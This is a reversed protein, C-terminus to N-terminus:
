FLWHNIGFQMQKDLVASQREDRVFDQKAEVFTSIQLPVVQIGNKLQWANM